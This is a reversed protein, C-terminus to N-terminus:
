AVEFADAFRLGAAPTAPAFRALRDVQGCIRRLSGPQDVRITARDVHLGDGGHLLRLDLCQQCVVCDPVDPCAM